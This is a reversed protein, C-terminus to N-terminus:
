AALCCYRALQTCTAAPKTQYPDLAPLAGAPQRERSDSWWARSHRGSDPRQFHPSSRWSEVMDLIAAVKSRGRHSRAELALTNTYSSEIDPPARVRVPNQPPGTCDM